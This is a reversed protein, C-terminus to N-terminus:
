RVGGEAQKIILEKDQIFRAHILEEAMEGIRKGNAIALLKLQKYLERKIGINTRGLDPM